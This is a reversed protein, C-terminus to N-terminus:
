TARIIEALNKDTPVSYRTEHRDIFKLAPLALRV